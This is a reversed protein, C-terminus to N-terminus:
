DDNFTFPIFLVVVGLETVRGQKSQLFYAHCNTTAWDLEPDKLLKM